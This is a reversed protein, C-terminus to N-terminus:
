LNSGCFTCEFLSTLMSVNFVLDLIMWFVDEENEDFFQSLIIYITFDEKNNDGLIYLSM